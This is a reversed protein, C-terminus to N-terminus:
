DGTAFVDTVGKGVGASCLPCRPKFNENTFCEKCISPLTCDCDFKIRAVNNDCNQVRCEVDEEEAKRDPASSLTGAAELRQRKYTEADEEDDEDDTDDDQLLNAFLATGALINIFGLMDDESRVRVTTVRSGNPGTAVRLNLREMLRFHKLTNTARRFVERGDEDRKLLDELMKDKMFGQNALNGQKELMEEVDDVLKRAEEDTYEM